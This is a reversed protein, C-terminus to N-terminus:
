SLRVTHGIASSEVTSPSVFFAVIYYAVSSVCVDSHIIATECHGMLNRRDSLRSGDVIRLMINKLFHFLTWGSVSISECSNTHWFCCINTWNLILQIACAAVCVNVAIIASKGHLLFVMRERAIVFSEM